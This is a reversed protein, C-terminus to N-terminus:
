GTAKCDSGTAVTAVGSICCEADTVTTADVSLSKTGGGAGRTCTAAGCVGVFSGTAVIGQGAVGAADAGSAGAPAAVIGAAGGGTAGAGTAVIGAAGGGTAGAEPAVIGATGTCLAATGRCSRDGTAEAGPTTAVDPLARVLGTVAAFPWSSRGSVGACGTSGAPASSRMSVEAASGGAEGVPMGPSGEGSIVRAALVLAVRSGVWV